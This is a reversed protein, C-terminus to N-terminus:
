FLISSLPNAVASLVTAKREGCIAFLIAVEPLCIANEAIKAFRAYSKYISGVANVILVCM